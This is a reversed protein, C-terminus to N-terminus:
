EYIEYTVHVFPPPSLHFSHLSLANACAPADIRPPLAIEWMKKFKPNVNTILIANYLAITSLLSQGLHRM